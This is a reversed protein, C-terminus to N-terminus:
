GLFLDPLLPQSPDVAYGSFDTVGAAFLVADNSLHHFHPGAYRGIKNTPSPPLYTTRGLNAWEVNRLNPKASGTFAVHARTGTSAPLPSPPPRRTYGTPSSCRSTCSNVLTPL